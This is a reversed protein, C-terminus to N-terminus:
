DLYPQVQIFNFALEQGVDGGPDDRGLWDSITLLVERGSPKFVAFHFNMWFRHEATFPGLQHCSPYAHQFQSLIKAGAIEYSVAHMKQVSRGEVLDKYDATYFRLSYVRSPDLAKVM